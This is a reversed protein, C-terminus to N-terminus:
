QQGGILECIPESHKIRGSVHGSRSATHWGAQDLPTTAAGATLGRPRSVAIRRWANVFASVDDIDGGCGIIIAKVVELKPLTDGNMANFMTSHVVAQNARDAMKRWPPDGSWARYRWLADIFAAPSTASLLPNPKGDPGSVDSVQQSVAGDATLRHRGQNEDAYVTHEAMQEEFKRLASRVKQHDRIEPRQLRWRLGSISAVTRDAEEETAALPGDQSDPPTHGHRGTM